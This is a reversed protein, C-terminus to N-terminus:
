LSLELGCRALVVEGKYFETVEDALTHIEGFHPLHTLILKKVNAQAALRGVEATNMHGYDRANTVEAYFSTEAILLDAGRCFDILSDDYFTDATYVLVKNEFEIKVAVCYAGHFTKMFSFRLGSLEFSDRESFRIVESGMMTKYVANENEDSHPDHAFHIPLPESRRKLDTDILCGYQLCGLDAVHDHHVHTILVQSLETLKIHKQLQALVGSGCDLLLNNGEHQILYGATAEGAAPYAGWHGLITLKM